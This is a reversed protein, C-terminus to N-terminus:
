KLEGQFKANAMITRFTILQEASAWHFRWMRAYSMVARTFILKPDANEIAAIAMIAAFAADDIPVDVRETDSLM